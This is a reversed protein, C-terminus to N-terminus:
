AVIKAIEAKIAQWNRLIADQKKSNETIENVEKEKGECRKQWYIGVESIINKIILPHDAEPMSIIKAVIGSVDDKTNLPHDKDFQTKLQEFPNGKIENEVADPKKSILGFPDNAPAFPEPWTGDKKPEDFDFRTIRYKENEEDGFITIGIKTGYMQTLAVMDSMTLDIKSLENLDHRAIADKIAELNM